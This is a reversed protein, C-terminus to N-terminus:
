GQGEDWSIESGPVGTGIVYIAQPSELDVADNPNLLMGDLSLTGRNVYGYRVPNAGTNRLTLYTRNANAPRVLSNPGANGNVLLAGTDATATAKRAATRSNPFSSFCQGIAM